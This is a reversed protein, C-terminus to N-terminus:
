PSLHPWEAPHILCLLDSQVRSLVPLHYCQSELPWTVFGEMGSTKLNVNQTGKGGEKM